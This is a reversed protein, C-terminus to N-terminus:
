KNTKLYALVEEANGKFVIKQTTNQIQHLYMPDYYDRLLVEIWKKHLEFSGSGIQEKCGQEFLGMVQKSREGGLRNQIRELSSKIYNAWEKQGQEQTYLKIFQEQSELVYEMMTNHVREELPVELIVLEGSKFYEVLGKPIMCKGVNKGEDELIMSSFAKHKHQILAYALNNEFNIQTPQPTVNRGFTSGRHNALGELDIANKLRRLLITKGSGTCGGLLIPNSKQQSPELAEILYNRFAKYGGDLREIEKGTTEAIWQQSIQSRLGGRFCYLMSNPHKDLHQKWALIREERIEGSVLQHGLTVAAENGKEKYCIGVLRREEDRMLPLNIANIFSGKEFEIPARVDILPIVENVIKEFNKYPELNM